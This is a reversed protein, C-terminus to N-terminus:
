EGITSSVRAESGMRAAAAAARARDQYRGVRVAYLKKSGSFTTVVRPVDLGASVAKPRIRDAQAQARQFTSYAGVQVTFNGASKTPATGSVSALRDNVMTRLTSDTVLKQARVYQERARDRLSMARYADGAYIAARGADDGTLKESAKILMGAAKQHQEREEAILGLTALANGAIIPDSDDVLPTLWKEADENRNIAQASLGAVLAAQTRATGSAKGETQVAADFAERYRGAEYLERYNLTSGKESSACGGLGGLAMLSVAVVCLILALEWLGRAAFRPQRCIPALTTM